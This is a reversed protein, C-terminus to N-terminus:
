AIQFFHSIFVIYKKNVKSFSFRLKTRQKKHTHKLSSCQQLKLLKQAVSIIFLEQKKKAFICEELYFVLSDWLFNNWLENYNKKKSKLKTIIAEYWSLINRYIEIKIKNRIWLNKTFCIESTFLEINSRYHFYFLFNKLSSFCKRKIFYKNNRTM